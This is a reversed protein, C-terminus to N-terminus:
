LNALGDSEKRNQYNRLFPTTMKRLTLLMMFRRESRIQYRVIKTVTSSLPWTNQLMVDTLTRADAREHDRRARGMRRLNLRRGRIEWLALGNNRRESNMGYLHDARERNPVGPVHITYNINKGNVSLTRAHGCPGTFTRRREMRTAPIAKLPHQSPIQRQEPHM